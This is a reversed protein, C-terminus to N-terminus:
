CFVTCSQEHHRGTPCGQHSQLYVTFSLYIGTCLPPTLHLLIFDLGFHALKGMWGEHQGAHYEGIGAQEQEVRFRGLMAEVLCCSVKPSALAGSKSGCPLHPVQALEASVGKASGRTHGASLMCGPLNRMMQLAWPSQETPFPSRTDASQMETLMAWRVPLSQGRIFFGTWTKQCTLLM